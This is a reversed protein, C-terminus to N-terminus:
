RGFGGSFLGRSSGSFNISLLWKMLIMRSRIGFRMWCQSRTTQVEGGIHSTESEFGPGSSDLFQQVTGAKCHTVGEYINYHTCVCVCIYMFMCVYMCICVYVRVYSCLYVSVCVCMCVYVCVCMYIYVCVYICVYMYAYM